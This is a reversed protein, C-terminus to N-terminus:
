NFLNIKDVGPAWELYYTGDNKKAYEIAKNTLWTRDGYHTSQVTVDKSKYGTFPTADEKFGGTTISGSYEMRESSACTFYYPWGAIKVQIDYTKLVSYLQFVTISNASADVIAQTVFGVASPIWTLKPNSIKSSVVTTILGNLNTIGDLLVNNYSKKYEIPQKYEAPVAKIDEIVVEDTLNMPLMSYLDSIPIEEVTVSVLEWGAAILANHRDASVSVGSNPGPIGLSTIGNQCSHYGNPAIDNAFVSPVSTDCLASTSLLCLALALAVVTTLRRVFSHYM